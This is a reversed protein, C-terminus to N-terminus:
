NCGGQLKIVSKIGEFKEPSKRDAFLAAIM